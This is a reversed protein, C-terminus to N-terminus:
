SYVNGSSLHLYFFSLLFDIRVKYCNIQKILHLEQSVKDVLLHPFTDKMFVNGAGGEGLVCVCVWMKLGRQAVVLFRNKPMIPRSLISSVHRLVKKKTEMISM